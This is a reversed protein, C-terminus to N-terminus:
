RALNGAGEKDANFAARNGDSWAGKVQASVCERLKALAYGGMGLERAAKIIADERDTLSM